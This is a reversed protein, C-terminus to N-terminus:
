PPEAASSPQLQAGSESQLLEALRRADVTAAGDATNDFICWVSRARRAARAISDALQRLAADDYASYYMRPSGHWRFYAFKAAGGPVAAAPVVAPDAAVRSVNCRSLLEDASAAFWSAHRPECATHSNSLETIQSFLQGASGAEFQLSPPLQVLIAALKHGLGSVEELFKSVLSDVGLLRKEHTIQKPLKVAFRFDPPTSQAWRVYTSRRHPRYFSSNIEVASFQRAYRELHAGEGPFFASQETRISWGAIGIFVTM